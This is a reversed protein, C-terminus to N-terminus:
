GLSRKAALYHAVVPESGEKLCQHIKQQLAQDTKTVHEHQRLHELWSEVMFTELYCDSTGIDQFLRWYFAGNRRHSIRQREMLRLFQELHVPNVQYSLTVLVPGRHPELQNDQAHAPWHMSPTLDIGRLSPLRIRWTAFVGLVLGAAGIQLAEPVSLLTAVQGWTLAGGVMGAMIVVMVISLGRARVWAPLATQAVGQISAMVWLWAMGSLLADVTLWSLTPVWAMLAMTGGYLTAAGKELLDPGIRQRLWPLTFVSLVAGLGVAGLVMGYDGPGGGFGRKVLIPLLAWTASAFFFFAGARAMVAKLPRYHRVYRIGNRIAGAMFEAPLESAKPPYKWRALVAIIGLFSVANLVFVAGPSTLAIIYGALSPGVVRSLNMSLGNLAIAAQLGQRSVLEPIIASWAPLTFASGIGLALTMGLLLPATTMESLTLLGLGAAVLSMWSQTMLLLRRRDVIDAIAGAPLALLMIPLSTAAQVMAVLFPSASLSAM